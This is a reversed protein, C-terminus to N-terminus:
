VPNNVVRLDIKYSAGLRTMAERIKHQYTAVKQDLGREVICDRSVEFGAYCPSPQTRASAWSALLLVISGAFRSV